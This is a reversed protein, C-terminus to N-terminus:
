REHPSIAIARPLQGTEMQSPVTSGTYPNVRWISEPQESERSNTLIYYIWRDVWDYTLGQSCFILKDMPFNLAQRSVTIVLFRNQFGQNLPLKSGKTFLAFKPAM